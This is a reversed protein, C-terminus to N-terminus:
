PCPTAGPSPGPIEWCDVKCSLVRAAGRPACWPRGRRPGRRFNGLHFNHADATGEWFMIVGLRKKTRRELFVPIAAEVVGVHHVPHMGVGFNVAAIKRQR